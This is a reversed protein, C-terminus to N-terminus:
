SDSSSRRWCPKLSTSVAVPTSSM